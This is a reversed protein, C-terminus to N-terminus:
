LVDKLGVDLKVIPNHVFKKMASIDACVDQPKGVISKYKARVGILLELKQCLKKLTLVENGAVNYTASKKIELASLVSAAADSVHIPNIRSGEDGLLNIVQGQRINDVLRPILMTRNQGTGYIFFFRLIAVNFYSSYSQTLIEGCIKSGQYYGLNITPLISNNENQIEASTGYVSGSSAYIFKDAGTRWAYDLLMATSAVNVNFVDLSKGPIDRFHSSQALHIVGKLNSQPLREYDRDKNLDMTHYKVGFLPNNPQSRVISHINYQNSLKSLLHRGLLGSSGTIVINKRKM